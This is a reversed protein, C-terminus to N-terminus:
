KNQTLIHKRTIYDLMLPRVLFYALLTGWTPILTYNTISKGESGYRTILINAVEVNWGRMYVSQNLISTTGAILFEVLAQLIVSVLEVIVAILLWYTVYKLTPIRYGISLKFILLLYLLPALLLVAYGTLIITVFAYFLSMYSGSPALVFGSYIGISLYFLGPLSLFLFFIIAPIHRMVKLVSLKLLEVSNLFSYTYPVLCQLLAQLGVGIQLLLLVQANPYLEYFSYPRDAYYPYANYYVLTFLVAFVLVIVSKWKRM